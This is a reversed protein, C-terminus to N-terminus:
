EDDKSAEDMQKTMEKDRAEQKGQVAKSTDLPTKVYEELVNPKKSRTEKDRPECGPLASLLVTLVSLFSVTLHGNSAM